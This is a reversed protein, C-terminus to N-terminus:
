AKTRLFLNISAVVSNTPAGNSRIEVVGGAPVTNVAVINRESKTGATSGANPVTLTDAISVGNIYISLIADAGTIAAFLVSSLRVIESKLPVYFWVSSAAGIDAMLQSDSMYNANFLDANKGTWVGSGLGNAVYVTGSAATDAGKPEHLDAGTLDKHLAL